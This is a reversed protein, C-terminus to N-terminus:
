TALLLWTLATFALFDAGRGALIFDILLVLEEAVSLSLSFFSSSINLIDPLALTEYFSLSSLELM